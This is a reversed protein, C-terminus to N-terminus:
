TWPAKGVIFVDPKLSYGMKLRLYSMGQRTKADFGLSALRQLYDPPPNKIIPILQLQNGLTLLDSRVSALLGGVRQFHRKIIIEWSYTDVMLRNDRACIQCALREAEDLIEHPTRSPALVLVLTIPHNPDSVGKALPGILGVEFPYPRIGQALKAALSAVAQLYLSPDVLQFFSQWPRLRAKEYEFQHTQDNFVCSACGKFDNVLPATLKSNLKEWFRNDANNPIFIIDVGIGLRNIQTILQRSDSVAGRDMFFENFYTQWPVGYEGYLHQALRKAVLFTRDPISLQGSKTPGDMELVFVVREGPYTVVLEALDIAEGTPTISLRDAFFGTLHVKTVWDISILHRGLKSLGEYLDFTVNAMINEQLLLYNFQRLAL